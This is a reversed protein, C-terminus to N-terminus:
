KLTGQCGNLGCTEGFKKPPLTSKKGCADCILITYIESTGRGRVLTGSCNGVGCVEGFRREKAFFSKRCQSCKVTEGTTSLMRHILNLNEPRNSMAM